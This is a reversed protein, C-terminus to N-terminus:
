DSTYSIELHRAKWSALALAVASVGLIGTVALWPSVPTAILSFPGQSVRIPTLSGLYHVMSIAKLTTPLFSTLIEWGLFMIAPIMPNKFFLGALLFIAGYGICALVVVVLYNALQWVGGNALLYTILNAPGMALYVLLYTVATAPVFLFSTALVGGTYKGLVMVERRMPALMLYHLSRDLVEGRFLNIFLGACGFFVIFRLIFFQFVEAFEHVDQGRGRLSVEPAFLATVVGMLLPLAILAYAPISRRSFLTKFLESRVLAMVQHRRISWRSVPTTLPSSM